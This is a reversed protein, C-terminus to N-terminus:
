HERSGGSRHDRVVDLLFCWIVGGKSVSQPCPPRLSLIEAGLVSTGEM